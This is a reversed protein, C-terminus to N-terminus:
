SRHIRLQQGGYSVIQGEDVRVKVNAECPELAGADDAVSTGNTSGRDMVWPGDEDWGVALHTKSVAAAHVGVGVVDADEGLLAQPNRGILLVRRLPVIRGGGLDVTWRPGSRPRGAPRSVPESEARALGPPTPPVNGQAQAPVAAMVTTMASAPPTPRAFPNAPPASEASEADGVSPGDPQSESVSPPPEPGVRDDVAAEPSKWEPEAMGAVGSEAEIGPVSQESAVTPMSASKPDLPLLTAPQTESETREDIVVSGAAVDHPGQRRPSSVLMVILVLWGVGSAALVAFVLQRLLARGWGLPQGTRRQLAQLRMARMGPTGLRHALMWWSVWLWGLALVAVAGIVILLVDTPGDNLLVIGPAIALVPLPLGDILWGTVRRGLSGLRINPPLDGVRSTTASTAVSSDTGMIVGVTSCDGRNAGM